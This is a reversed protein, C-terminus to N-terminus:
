AAKLYLEGKKVVLGIQQFAMLRKGAADKKIGCVTEIRQTIEGWKFGGLAREDDFVEAVVPVCEERKREQKSDVASGTVSIHMGAADNWQFRPGKVRPINARRCKESFITSIGDADKVIRLNSEAKRELQSGLHGRTKGSGGGREANIPNEHLVLILPADYRVALSVLEDVLGFAEATDNPDVCLDAVGDVIVAHIGDCDNAAREMELTLLERREHTPIDLLYYSRLLAPSDNEGARRLARACLMHADYPSQETDFHIVAKGNSLAAKFGLTDVGTKEGVLIAALLGGLAATKGAKAQASIVTLNGPTSIQQDCLSLVTVPEAPPNYLDFRRADLKSFDPKPWDTAPPKPTNM